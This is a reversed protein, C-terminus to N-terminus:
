DNEARFGSPSLGVQRKFERSFYYPDAFGSICAVESVTCNSGRLMNKAKEIRLYNVYRMPSIGSRSKFIRRLHVETIGVSAAIDGVTLTDSSYNELVYKMASSYLEGSKSYERMTSRLCSAYIRYLESFAESERYLASGHWVRFLREFDSRVTASPNDFCDASRVVSSDEFDFDIVIYCSECHVSMFYSSSKPLFVVSGERATFSKDFFRYETSGSCFYVFADSYRKKHSNDIEGRTMSGEYVTRINYIKLNNEM